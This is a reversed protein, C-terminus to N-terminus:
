QCPMLLLTKMTGGNGMECDWAELLEKSANKQVFMRGNIEIRADEKGTLALDAMYDIIVDGTQVELFRQFGSLRMDVIHKLCRFALEENAVVGGDASSEDNPDYGDPRAVTRWRLVADVAAESGLLQEAARQMVIQFGPLM